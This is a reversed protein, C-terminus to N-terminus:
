GCKDKNKNLYVQVNIQPDSIHWGYVQLYGLSQWGYMQSHGLSWPTKVDTQPRSLHPKTSNYMCHKWPSIGTSVDIGYWVRQSKSTESWPTCDPYNLPHSLCFPQYNLTQLPYIYVNSPETGPSLFLLSCCHHTKPGKTVPFTGINVMGTTQTPICGPVDTPGPGNLTLTLALCIPLAQSSGLFSYNSSSATTIQFPPPPLAPGALFDSQNIHVKVM